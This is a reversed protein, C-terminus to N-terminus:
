YVWSLLSPKGAAERKLERQLAKEAEERTKWKRNTTSYGDAGILFFKGEYEGVTTQKKM